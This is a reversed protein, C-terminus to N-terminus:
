KQEVSGIPYVVTMTGQCNMRHIYHCHGLYTQLDTIPGAPQMALPQADQQPKDLDAVSGAPQMALTQDGSDGKFAATTGGIAANVPSLAAPPVVTHIAASLPKSIASIGPPAVQTMSQGMGIGIDRGIKGAETTPDAIPLDHLM